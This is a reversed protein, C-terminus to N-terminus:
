ERHEGEDPAPFQSPDVVDPFRGNSHTRIAAVLAEAPVSLRDIPVDLLYANRNPVRRWFAWLASVAARPSGPHESGYLRLRRRGPRSATVVVHELEAWATTDPPDGSWGMGASGIDLQLGRLQEGDHRLSRGVIATVVAVAFAGISAATADALIGDLQASATWVGTQNLVWLVGRTLVLAVTLASTIGVVLQGAVALWRGWRALRGARPVDAATM